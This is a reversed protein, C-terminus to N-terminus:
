DDQTRIETYPFNKIYSRHTHTHTHTNHTHTHTNHANTHQTHTHTHTHTGTLFKLVLEDTDYSTAQRVLM